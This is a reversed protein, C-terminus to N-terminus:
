GADTGESRPLCLTFVSGGAPGAVVEAFGGHEEVIDKVVTLGLGTGEGPPKTTFFPEFIRERVESDIGPGADHVSITVWNEAGRIESLTIRVVARPPSVQIANLALNTIAQQLQDPDADLMLEGGREPLVLSVQRQEALGRLLAGAQRVADAADLRTRRAPRRRAYDLIRRVIRTIRDSQEGIVSASEAIAEATMKGTAILKGHGAIVNLPTGIEHALVSALKGLTTLREAHRLQESARIRAEAESKTRSREADIERSMSRLADALEGFEDRRRITQLVDRNGEAIQRTAHILQSVPQGVVKAGILAVTLGGVLVMALSSALWTWIGRWIYEARSALPQSLEIAGYPEDVVPAGVYTLLLDASGGVERPKVIQKWEGRAPLRGVAVLPTLDKDPSPGLSVFRVRMFERSADVRRALRVADERMRTKALAAGATVGVIRQDRRVDQDFLLIESRVRMATFVAVVVFVGAFLALALKPVVRM